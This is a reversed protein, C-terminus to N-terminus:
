TCLSSSQHRRGRNGVERQLTGQRTEEEGFPQDRVGSVSPIAEFRFSEEDFVKDSPLSIHTSEYLSAQLCRGQLSEDICGLCTENLLLCSSFCCDITYIKLPLLRSAPEQLTGPSCVAPSSRVGQVHKAFVRGGGDGVGRKLLSLLLQARVLGGGAPQQVDVQLGGDGAPALSLDSEPQEGRQVVDDGRMPGVKCVTDGGFIYGCGRSSLRWGTMDEEPDSWLWDCIGGELPVEM